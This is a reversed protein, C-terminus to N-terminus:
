GKTIYLIVAFEVLAITFFAYAFFGHPFLRLNLDMLEDRLAIRAKYEDDYVKTLEANRKEFQKVIAEHDSLSVSHTTSRKM